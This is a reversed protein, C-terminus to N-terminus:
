PRVDKPRPAAGPRFAVVFFPGFGPLLLALLSWLAYARLGMRRRRLYAMSVAFAAILYLLLLIRLADAMM